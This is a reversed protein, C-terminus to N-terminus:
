SGAAEDPLDEGGTGRGSRLQQVQIGLCGMLAQGPLGLTMTILVIAALALALLLAARLTAGWSALIDDLLSRPSHEPPAPRFV